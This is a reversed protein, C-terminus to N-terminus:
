ILKSIYNFLNKMITDIFEKNTFFDTLCKHQLDPYFSVNPTEKFNTNNNFLSFDIKLKKFIAPTQKRSNFFIINVKNKLYSFLGIIEKNEKLNQLEKQHEKSCIKKLKFLLIIKSFFIIKKKNRFILYINIRASNNASILGILLQHLFDVGGNWGLLRDGMLAINLQNKFKM